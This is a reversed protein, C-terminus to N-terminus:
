VRLTDPFRRRSQIHSDALAISVGEGKCSKSTSPSEAAWGCSIRRELLSRVQVLVGTFLAPLM